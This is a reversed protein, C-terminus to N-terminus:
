CTRPNRDLSEAIPNKLNLAQLAIAIRLKLEKDTTLKDLAGLSLRASELLRKEEIRLIRM